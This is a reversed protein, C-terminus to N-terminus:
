ESVGGWPDQGTAMLLITSLIMGRTAAAVISAATLTLYEGSRKVIPSWKASGDGEIRAEGLVEELVTFDKMEEPPPPQM